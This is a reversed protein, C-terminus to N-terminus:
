GVHKLLMYMKLTIPHSCIFFCCFVKLKLIDIGSHGEFLTLTMSLPVFAYFESVIKMMCLKVGVVNFTCWFFILFFRLTLTKQCPRVSLQDHFSCMNKKQQTWFCIYVRREVNMSMKQGPRVKSLSFVGTRLMLFCILWFSLLGLALSVHVEFKTGDTM